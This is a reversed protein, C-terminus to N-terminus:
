FMCLAERITEGVSPHPFVLERAAQPSMEKEIMLAAGFIMESAYSGIIHCGLIRNRATDVVIKVFGEGRGVEAIYRGSLLMPAKVTRVQYGKAKASEETEGVSAVEPDTYIVSPIADYRMTDPVGLIHHVAAEAERYATHALMAKGNIDGVAYVGPINTRMHADTVVCGRETYVGINELGLGDTFARRGIACLVVDAEVEGPKGNEEYQVAHEGIGTVKCGLRFEMGRKKYEKLLQASCENETPGAIKDLMEVVTVPVDVMNYYTAMELGIVGGGIVVLHKPLTKLELLERNTLVYGREIGERLGPIPPIVPVSGSALILTKATWTEGDAEVTFGDASKGTIKGEAMVVTVHNAKMAAGVGSVLTKVVKAKHDIVKGQDVEVKKAKVGFTESGKAHAYLKGSNLLAKSPICGENLCTGGLSRKEILTVKKGGQAAREAALYGGPGGGLVLVETEKM